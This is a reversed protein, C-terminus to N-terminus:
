RLCLPSVMAGRAEQVPKRLTESTVIGILSYLTILLVVL